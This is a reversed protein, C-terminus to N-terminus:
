LFLSEQVPVTQSSACSHAMWDSPDKLMFRVPGNFIFYSRDLPVSDLSFQGNGYEEIMEQKRRAMYEDDSAQVPQISCSIRDLPTEQMSKLFGRFSSICNKYSGPHSLEQESLSSIYRGVARYLWTAAGIGVGNGDFQVYYPESQSMLKIFNTPHPPTENCKSPTYGAITSEGVYPYGDNSFTNPIAIFSKHKAVLDFHNAVSAVTGRSEVEQIFDKKILPNDYYFSFDLLQQPDYFFPRSIADIWSKIYGEPTLKRNPSALMGGEIDSAYTFIRKLTSQLDGVHVVSVHPTQPFVNSDYTVENLIFIREGNNDLFINALRKLTYTTSM